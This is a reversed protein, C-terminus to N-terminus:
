WLFEILEIRNVREKCNYDLQKLLCFFSIRAGMMAMSFILVTPSDYLFLFLLGCVSSCRRCTVMWDLNWSMVGGKYSVDWSAAKRRRGLCGQFHQLFLFSYFIFFYNFVLCVFLLPSFEAQLRGTAWSFWDRFQNGFCSFFSPLALVETDSGNKLEATGTNNCM